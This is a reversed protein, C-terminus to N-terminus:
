HATWTGPQGGKGAATCTWWETGKPTPAPNWTRQGVSFGGAFQSSTPPGYGAVSGTVYSSADFIISLVEGCSLNGNIVSNNLFEFHGSNTTLNGILKSNNLYVKTHGVTQTGFTFTSNILRTEAQAFKGGAITTGTCTIRANPNSSSLTGISGGRYDLAQSPLASFGVDVKTSAVDRVHLGPTVGRLSLIKGKEVYV